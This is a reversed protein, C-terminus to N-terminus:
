REHKARLAILAEIKTGRAAAAAAPVVRECASRVRRFRRALTVLAMNSWEHQHRLRESWRARCAALCAENRAADAARLLQEEALRQALDAARAETYAFALQTVANTATTTALQGELGRRTEDAAVAAVELAGRRLQRELKAGLLLDALAGELKAVDATAFTVALGIESFAPDPNGWGTIVPPPPPPAALPSFLPAQAPLAVLPLGAAAPRRRRSIWPHYTQRRPRPASCPSTRSKFRRLSRALILFCVSFARPCFRLARACYSHEKFSALTKKGARRTKKKFL